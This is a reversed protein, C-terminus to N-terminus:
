LLNQIRAAMQKEAGGSRVARSQRRGRRNNRAAAFSYRGAYDLLVGPVPRVPRSGVSGAGRLGSDLSDHFVTELECRSRLCSPQGRIPEVAVVSLSTM